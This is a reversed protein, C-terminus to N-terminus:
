RILMCDGYSYFRYRQKVAELYAQMVQERGALASVMMLLTSRPLHFNTLMMDVVQFKFGPRIFLSVRGTDTAIRGANAAAVHELTRVTTSGVALIRGGARRTQEISEATAAPIEFRESEMVHEEPRDTTVPKFTGPGVHLTLCVRRVGRQELAALLTPTFHLGATPAAVAGPNRAYVTQYRERDADVPTSRRIYPPLPPVGEAELIDPLHEDPNGSATQLSLLVTGDGAVEVVAAAIRDSALRYRDGTKVRGSAKCWAQWIGPARPETLLVEVRGGSVTKRGFLRAPIVRTDNVVMLDGAQLLQPLDSVTRHEISTTARDLVLMRAQDRDPLPQQAILEPPLHYDFDSTRM